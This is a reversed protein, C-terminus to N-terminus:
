RSNSKKRKRKIKMKSNKLSNDKESVVKIKGEQIQKAIIQREIMLARTIEDYQHLKKALENFFINLASNNIKLEEPEIIEIHSPMYGLMLLMLKELSTEIEIEAFSTFVEEIGKQELKKPEALNKSIIRVDKEKGLNEAIKELNEKLYSAPKGLIELILIAKLKEEAM